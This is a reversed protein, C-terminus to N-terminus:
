ERPVEAKGFQIRVPESEALWSSSEGAAHVFFLVHLDYVGPPIPMTKFPEPPPLHETVQEIPVSRKKVEAWRREPDALIHEVRGRVRMEAGPKLALSVKEWEPHPESVMASRLAEPSPAILVLPRREPPVVPKPGVRKDASTDIPIDVRVGDPRHLNVRLRDNTHLLEVLDPGDNVVTVQFEIGGRERPQETDVDLFVRVRNLPSAAHAPMTKEIMRMEKRVHTESPPEGWALCPLVMAITTYMRMRFTM